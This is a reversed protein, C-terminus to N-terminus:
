IKNLPAFNDTGDFFFVSNAEKKYATIYQNFKSSREVILQEPVHRNIVKERAAARQIALKTDCLIFDVETKYGYKKINQFLELHANNTGSHELMINLHLNLARRLLEYGIIRAPMEYKRYAQEAGGLTLELQYGSLKSMIKDFSLYLFDKKAYKACFTSKGAGPIGSVQLLKPEKAPYLGKLSQSIIEETEKSKVSKYDSVVLEKISPMLIKLM